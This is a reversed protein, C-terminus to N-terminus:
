TFDQFFKLARKETYTQSGPLYFGVHGGYKPTELYLKKHTDAITNPYCEPGLFSDNQANVILSPRDINPLYQKCSSQTYYDLANSFGNAISTYINDFDELTRIKAIMADTIRNPFQQKKVHLKALLHRKFRQAYVKNKFRLLQRCSSHLDCPVSIAVAAKVQSPLTNNEGMYKLTLNGGLSFGQIFFDSYCDLHLIHQIVAELDETAGSHYSRFLTNITGSCGRLNMACVDYGNANFLHASGGIYPRQADGELGHILIVLQKTKKAAYSWDLDLFDGDPLTIRERQQSPLSVKRLTGAYITAVHGNRIWFPPKYTSPLLPM